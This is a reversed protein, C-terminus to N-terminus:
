HLRIHAGATAAREQIHGDAVGCLVLGGFPPREDHRRGLLGYEWAAPGLGGGAALNPWRSRTHPTSRLPVSCRVPAARAATHSASGGMPPEAAQESFSTNGKAFKQREYRWLKGNASNAVLRAMETM